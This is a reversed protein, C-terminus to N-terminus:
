SKAISWPRSEVHLRPPSSSEHPFVSSRGSGALRSNPRKRQKAVRHVHTDSRLITGRCRCLSTLRPHRARLAFTGAAGVGPHRDVFLRAAVAPVLVYWVCRGGLVFSWYVFRRVRTEDVAQGIM